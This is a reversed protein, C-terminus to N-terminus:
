NHRPAARKYAKVHKGKKTTYARVHVTKPRGVSRSHSSSRHGGRQGSSAFSIPAALLAGVFLVALFKRVNM